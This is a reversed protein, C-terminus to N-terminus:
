PSSAATPLRSSRSSGSPVRSGAGQVASLGVPGAGFVVVDSGAEVPVKTMTMGLGCNGVCTLMALEVSSVENFVPLLKEQNLVMVETM